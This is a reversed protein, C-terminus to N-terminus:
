ASESVGISLPGKYKNLVGKKGYNVAEKQAADRAASMIREGLRKVGRQMRNLATVNTAALDGFEQQRAVLRARLAPDAARFEDKRELMQAIGNQYKRASEIKRDQLNMFAAADCKDLAANEEIYVTRLADIAHMMEQMAKHPDRSLVFERAAASSDLENMNMKGNDPM